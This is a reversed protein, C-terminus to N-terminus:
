EVRDKIQQNIYAPLESQLISQQPQESRLDKVGVTNQAIEDDGLILAWRAGSRDARKLQAKFNGGGYNIQLRISPIAERLHEAFLLAQHKALLGVAVLYADVRAIERLLNQEGLLAILREIGMAFGAAPTSPGGLQEVLGDYRGGACVTGQSGLQDTVWEFVTQTYYDLGRVLRPNIEYHIGIRDLLDRLAKFHNLSDNDLYDLIQPAQEIIEQMAPNKSDLIRMPNSYLRRRSDEDLYNQHGTFFNILHERYTARSEPSGLSNLQM